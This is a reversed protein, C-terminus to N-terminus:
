DAHRNDSTGRGERGKDGQGPWSSGPSPLQRCIRCVGGKEFAVKPMGFVVCSERGPRHHLRRLEEDGEHRPAMTEKDTLIVAWPMPSGPTPGLVSCCTVSPIHPEGPPRRFKVFFGQVKSVIMHAAPRSSRQGQRLEDNDRAEVVNMGVPRQGAQSLLQPLCPAHACSSTPSVDVPLMNLIQEMPWPAAPSARHRPGKGRGKPITRESKLIADMGLKPPVLLNPPSVAKKLNASSRGSRPACNSACTRWARASSSRPSTLIDHRGRSPMSRADAGHDTISSFMVVPMPSSRM